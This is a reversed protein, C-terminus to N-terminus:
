GQIPSAPLSGASDRNSSIPTANETETDAYRTAAARTIAASKDVQTGICADFIAIAYFRRPLGDGIATASSVCLCMRKM